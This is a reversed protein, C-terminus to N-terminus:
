LLIKIENEIVSQPVLGLFRKKIEGNKSFVYTTPTGYVGGVVDSFYDVSKRNAITLFDVGKKKFESLQTNLDDSRGGMLGIVKIKDKYEKAINNLAPIQAMCAVCDTSYFFLLFPENLGAIKLEKKSADYNTDIGNEDNLAMHHQKSLDFCGAFILGVVVLFAFKKM